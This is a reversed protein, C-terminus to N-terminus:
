VDGLAARLEDLERRRKDVERRLESMVVALALRPSPGVGVVHPADGSALELRWGDRTPEFSARHRGGFLKDAVTLSRALLDLGDPADPVDVPPPEPEPAPPAPESPLTLGRPEADPGRPPGAPFTYGQPGVPKDIDRCEPQPAERLQPFLDCLREWHKAIPITAEREWASITGQTVGLLDGLTHQEIRETQRWHRLAEAWTEFVQVAIPPLKSSQWSEDDPEPEPEPPPPPAVARVDSALLHATAFDAAGGEPEGNLYRHMEQVAHTSLPLRRFTGRLRKWQQSTPMIEGAEIQEVTSRSVGMRRAVDNVTMGLRERETRLLTGMESRVSQPTYVIEHM